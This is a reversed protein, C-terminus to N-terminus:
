ESTILDDFGSTDHVIELMESSNSVTVFADNAVSILVSYIFLLM